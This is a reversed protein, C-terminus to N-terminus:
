EGNQLLNRPALIGSPSSFALRAQRVSQRRHDSTLLRVTDDVPAIHAKIGRQSVASHYM